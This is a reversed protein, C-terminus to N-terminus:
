PRIHLTGSRAAVLGLTEDTVVVLDRLMHRDQATGVPRLTWVVIAWEEKLAVVIGLRESGLDQDRALVVLDGRTM